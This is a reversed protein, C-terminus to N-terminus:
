CPMQIILFSSGSVKGPYGDAPLPTSMDHVGDGPSSEPTKAGSCKTGILVKGDPANDEPNPSSVLRSLPIDDPDLGLHSPTPTKPHTNTPASDKKTLHASLHTTLNVGPLKTQGGHSSKTPPTNLKPIHYKVTREDSKDAPKSHTKDKPVISTHMPKKEESKDQRSSHKAGSEQEAKKHTRSVKRGDPSIGRPSIGRPSIGRPSIGRPSLAKQDATQKYVGPRPRQEVQMLRVLPSASQHGSEHLVTPYM